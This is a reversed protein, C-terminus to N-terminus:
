SWMRRGHEAVVGLDHTIVPDRTGLRAASREDSRPDAGPHHRRAGHDARRRDPAEPQLRPGHRDHRAPAHRRLVPASIRRLARAPTPSASWRSCDRDRARRPRAGRSGSTSRLPEAIQAGITLVPNLATMPEQFIMAIETGRIANIQRETRDLRALDVPGNRSAFLIEGSEIRRRPQCAAHDRLSTVSKGCGSEGVM